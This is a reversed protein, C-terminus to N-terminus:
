FCNLYPRRAGALSQALAGSWPDALSVAFDPDRFEGDRPGNGALARCRFHLTLANRDQLFDVSVLREVAVACGTADRVLRVVADWPAEGAAPDGGPLMLAGHAHDACVLVRRREDLVTALVALEKASRHSRPPRAEVFVDGAGTHVVEVQSFSRLFTEDRDALADALRHRGALTMPIPLDDPYFFGAESIEEGDVVLRGGLVRSIFQFGLTGRDAFYYLSSLRVPEVDLGTEERAERVAADWPAEGPEVGGGPWAWKNGKYTQHVLLVRGRDDFITALAGIDLTM